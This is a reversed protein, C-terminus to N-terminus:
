GEETNQAVWRREPIVECESAVGHGLVRDAIEEPSGSADGLALVLRETADEEVAARLLLGGLAEAVGVGGEPLEDM